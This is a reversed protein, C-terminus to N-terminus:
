AGELMAEVVGYGETVIDVATVVLGARGLLETIHRETREMAAMFVMMVIDMRSLIRPAQMAPVIGGFLWVKSYGRKMGSAVNRLIEVVKEDPWNHIIHKLLYVRAGTVPQPMFFDHAMYEIAQDRMNEPITEIVSRQDQLVIQGKQLQAPFKTKLARLDHGMGGGVDVLLPAGADLTDAGETIRDWVPYTDSWHQQNRKTTQFTNFDRAVPPNAALWQFFTHDTHFCSQFIGSPSDSDTPNCYDSAQLHDPFNQLNPVIKGFMRFGAAFASSGLINSTPTATYTEPSSEQIIGTGTIVRMLRALLTPEAGTQEALQQLTLPEKSLKEFVQLDSAARLCPFITFTTFSELANDGPKQLATIISQCEFIADRHTGADDLDIKNLQALFTKAEDVQPDFDTM